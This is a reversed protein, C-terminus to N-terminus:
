EFSKILNSIKNYDSKTESLKRERLDYDFWDSIIGNGNTLHQSYIRQNGKVYSSSLFTENEIAVKSFVKMLDLVFLFRKGNYRYFGGNDFFVDNNILYQIELAKSTFRNRSKKKRADNKKLLIETSEQMNNLNFNQNLFEIHNHYHEVMHKTVGSLSLIIEKFSYDRGYSNLYIKNWLDLLKDKSTIEFRM